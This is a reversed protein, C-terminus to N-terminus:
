GGGPLPTCPFQDKIRAHFHKGHSPAALLAAYELAPVGAYAYTDVGDKRAHRFRVRLEQSQPDYWVAALDSSAVSVWRPYEAAADTGSSEPPSDAHPAPFTVRVSEPLERARRVPPLPYPEVTTATM